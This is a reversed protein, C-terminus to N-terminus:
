TLSLLSLSAVWILFIAESLASEIYSLLPDTLIGLFFLALSTEQAGVFSGVSLRMLMVYGM